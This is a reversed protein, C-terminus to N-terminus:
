HHPHVLSRLVNYARKLRLRLNYITHLRGEWDKCREDNLLLMQYQVQLIVQELENVAWAPQQGPGDWLEFWEVRLEAEKEASYYDTLHCVGDSANAPLQRLGSTAGVSLAFCVACRNFRYAVSGM